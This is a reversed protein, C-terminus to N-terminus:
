QAFSGALQVGRGLACDLALEVLQAASAPRPDLHVLSVGLAHREPAPLRPPSAHLEVALALHARPLHALRLIGLGRAELLGALATPPSAYGDEIDVRDDAVLIFGRDILRLALDSKGSGPPGLLVVGEGDRAVCSAHIQM